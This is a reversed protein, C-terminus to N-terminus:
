SSFLFFHHVTNYQSSGDVTTNAIVAPSIVPSSGTARTGCWHSMMKIKNLSMKNPTKGMGVMREWDKVGYNVISNYVLETPHTRVHVHVQTSNPYTPLIHAHSLYSVESHWFVQRQVYRRNRQGKRMKTLDFTYWMHLVVSRFYPTVLFYIVYYNLLFSM